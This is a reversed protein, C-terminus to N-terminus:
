KIVAPFSRIEEGTAVNWLRVSHDWSGSALTKGDPAFAIAAVRRKHGVLRRLEAGTSIDWLKIFGDSEIESGDRSETAAIRGDPALAVCGVPKTQQPFSRLLKGSELDWLEIMGLYGKFDEGLLLQKGDTSLAMGFGSGQPEFRTVETGTSVDWIQVPGGDAILKRGDPSFLAHSACYSGGVGTSAKRFTRLLTGTAVDWLLVTECNAVVLRRGDPSFKVDQAYKVGKFLRLQAGTNADWLRVTQDSSGSALMKGDPSFAVSVVEFPLGHARHGEISLLQRGSAVDWLILTGDHSGSLLTRGDTSFAVAVVWDAHGEEEETQPANKGGETAFPHSRVKRKFSKFDPGVIEALLGAREPENLADRLYRVIEPSVEGADFLMAAWFLKLEPHRIAAFHAVAYARHKKDHALGRSIAVFPYLDYKEIDKETLSLLVPLYPGARRVADDTYFEGKTPLTKLLEIFEKKQADSADQAFLSPTLALLLASCLAIINSPSKLL